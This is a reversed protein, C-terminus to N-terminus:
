KFELRLQEERREREEQYKVYKRIMEADLGVTDAEWRPHGCFVSYKWYITSNGPRIIPSLIQFM